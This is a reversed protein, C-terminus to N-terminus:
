EFYALTRREVSSVSFEQDADTRCEVEKALWNGRVDYEYRFRAESKSDRESSPADSLHGEDDMGYERQENETVEGALDGHQNYTMTKRHTGLISFNWRTEVRRGEDDYDHVRRVPELDAGMMARVTKQQAPNFSAFLGAPLVDPSNTQAEEILNGRPDYIFDVRSLLRDASDQFALEIPRDHENYRTVLTVTGPASYGCDSGEVGWVYHTDPRQSAVDIYFIKKKRGEADYEYREVLRDAHGDSRAIIRALRGSDDHEYVRSDVGAANETRVSTLKGAGDYEYTTTWQSGDHNRHWQRLLDGDTRFELVTTDERAETHCADGNCQRSYWVRKIQCTHVPGRLGWRDRDSM